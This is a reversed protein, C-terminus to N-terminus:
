KRKWKITASMHSLCILGFTWWSVYGAMSMVVGAIIFNSFDAVTGVASASAFISNSDIGFGVYNEWSSIGPGYISGMPNYGFWDLVTGTLGELMGAISFDYYDHGLPAWPPDPPDFKAVEWSNSSIPTLSASLALAPMMVVIVAAVMTIFRIRSFMVRKM